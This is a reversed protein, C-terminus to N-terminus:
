ADHMMQMKADKDDDARGRRGESTGQALSQGCRHAAAALARACLLDAVRARLGLSQIPSHLLVSISHAAVLFVSLCNNLFPKMWAPHSFSLFFGNKGIETAHCFCWYRRMDDFSKM